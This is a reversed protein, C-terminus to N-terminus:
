LKKEVKEKKSTPFLYYSVSILFDIGLIISWTRWTAMLAKTDTSDGLLYNMGGIITAGIIYAIFHRFFGQLEKKGREVGYLKAPKNDIKLFYYQFKIDAWKIMQKGFAISVGIYIAALAHVVNAEEGNKLDFFTFILLFVDILPTAALLWISLKEKKFVYRTILGIIIFVWFAIEAFIILFTIM